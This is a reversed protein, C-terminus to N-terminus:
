SEDYDLDEDFKMGPKIVWAWHGGVQEKKSGWKKMKEAVSDLVGKMFDGKDHLLIHDSVMDLYLPNFKRASEAALILPSWTLSFGEKQADDLRDLLPAEVHVVFDRNQEVRSDCTRKNLVVLIDIDSNLRFDGRAYSGFVVLSVLSDGYHSLILDRTENLIRAKWRERWEILSSGSM